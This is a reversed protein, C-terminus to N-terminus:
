RRSVRRRLLLVVGAIGALALVSPEPVVQINLQIARTTEDYTLSSTYGADNVANYTAWQMTAATIVAAGGPGFDILTYTADGGTYDAFDVNYTANSMTVGTLFLRGPTIPTFGSASLNFTFTNNGKHELFSMNAVAGDDLVLSGNLMDWFNGTLTSGSGVSVTSGNLRIVGGNDTLTSNGTLNVTSLAPLNQNAGTATFKVTDGNGINITDGSVPLANGSWNVSNTWWGDGAEGDWTIVDARGACLVGSVMLVGAIWKCRKM